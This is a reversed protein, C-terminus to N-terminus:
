RVQMRTVNRAGGLVQVRVGEPEGSFNIALEESIRKLYFIYTKRQQSAANIQYNSKRLTYIRGKRKKGVRVAHLRCEKVGKKISDWIPM